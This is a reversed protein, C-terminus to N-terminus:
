RLKDKRKFTNAVTINLNEDIVEVYIEMKKNDNQSAEELANELIIGM